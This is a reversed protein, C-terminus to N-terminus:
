DRHYPHGSLITITRYLQEALLIRVLQHPFTMAGLSLTMDAQQLVSKGHGDAGGIFFCCNPTGDDRFRALHDAFARSSLDKGTEHLAIKIAHLPASKLLADAEEAKRDAAHSARSEPLEIITLPGLKLPRGAQQIRTAYREVLESDAGRKVRGIAAITLKM